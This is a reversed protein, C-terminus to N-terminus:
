TICVSPSSHRDGIPRDITVLSAGGFSTPKAIPPQNRDSATPPLREPRNALRTAPSCPSVAAAASSPKVKLKQSSSPAPTNSSSIAGSTFRRICPTFHGSGFGPWPHGTTMRASARMVSGQGPQARALRTGPLAPARDRSMSLPKPKRPISADRAALDRSISLPGSLERPRGAADAQRPHAAALGAGGTGIPGAVGAGAAAGDAGGRRPDELRRRHPGAGFPAQRRRPHAAARPRRRGATGARPEGGGQGDRHARGGRPRLPRRLAGAGGDGAMRHRGPRPAGPLRRRYGPQGHEIRDVVPLARLAGTGAPRPRPPTRRAHQPTGQLHNCNFSYSTRDDMIAFILHAAM